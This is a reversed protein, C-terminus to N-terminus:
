TSTHCFGACYQLAIIRWNFFILANVVVVFFLRLFQPIQNRRSEKEDRLLGDWDV